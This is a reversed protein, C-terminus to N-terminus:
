SGETGSREDRGPAGTSTPRLAPVRSRARTREPTSAREGFREFGQDVLLRAAGAPPRPREDAAAAAALPATTELAEDGTSMWTGAAFGLVLMAAM